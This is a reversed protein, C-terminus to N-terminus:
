RFTLPFGNMIVKIFISKTIWAKTSNRTKFYCIQIIPHSWNKLPVNFMHSINQLRSNIFASSLFTGCLKPFLSYGTNALTMPFTHSKPFKIFLAVFLFRFIILSLFIRYKFSTFSQNFYRGPRTPIVAWVQRFDQNIIYWNFHLCIFVPVISSKM